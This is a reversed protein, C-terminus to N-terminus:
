RWRLLQSQEHELGRTERNGLESKIRVIVEFELYEDRPLDERRKIPRM